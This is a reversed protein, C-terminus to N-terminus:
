GLLNSHQFQKPLFNGVFQLLGFLRHSRVELLVVLTLAILGYKYSPDLLELIAHDDVQRIARDLDVQRLAARHDM